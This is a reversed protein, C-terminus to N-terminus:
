VGDYEIINIKTTSWSGNKPADDWPIGAEDLINVIAWKDTSTYLIDLSGDENRKLGIYIKM